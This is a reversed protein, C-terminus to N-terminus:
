SLFYTKLLDNKINKLWCGSLGHRTVLASKDFNPYNEVRKIEFVFDTGGNKKCKQCLYSMIQSYCFNSFFRHQLLNERSCGYSGKWCVRSAHIRLKTCHLGMLRTELPGCCETRTSLIFLTKLLVSSPILM